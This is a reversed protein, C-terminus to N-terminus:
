GEFKSNEEETSVIKKVNEGFICYFGLFLHPVLFPFLHTANINSKGIDIAIMHAAFCFDTYFCILHTTMLPYLYKELKKSIQWM